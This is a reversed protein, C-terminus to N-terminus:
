AAAGIQELVYKTCVYDMKTSVVYPKGLSDREIVIDADDREVKSQASALDILLVKM